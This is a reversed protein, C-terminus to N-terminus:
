SWCELPRLPTGRVFLLGLTEDGPLCDGYLYYNDLKSISVMQTQLMQRQNITSVEPNEWSYNSFM